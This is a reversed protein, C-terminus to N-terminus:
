ASTKRKFLFPFAAICLLMVAILQFQSMNDGTKPPVPTNQPLPSPSPTGLPATPTPSPAISPTPTPSPTPQINPSPSDLYSWIGVFHIDENFIQKSPPNWKVFSWLGNGDSVSSFRSRPTISTGPLQHSLALPLQSLVGAPLPRTIGTDPQFSFSATFGASYGFELQNAHVLNVPTVSHIERRGLIPVNFFGVSAKAIGKVSGSVFARQAGNTQAMQKATENPLKFVLQNLAEQNLNKGTKANIEWTSYSKLEMDETVIDAGTREPSGSINEIRQGEIRLIMRLTFEKKREPNHVKFFVEPDSQSILSQFSNKGSGLLADSRPDQISLKNKGADMIFAPVWSYSKTSLYFSEPAEIKEDIKIHIDIHSYDAASGERNNFDPLSRYNNSLVRERIGAANAYGYSPNSYVLLAVRRDSNFTASLPIEHIFLVDDKEAFYDVVIDESDPRFASNLRTGPLKDEKSFRRQIFAANSKNVLPSLKAADGGWLWSLAGFGMDPIPINVYIAYLAEGGALGDPFATSITDSALYIKAGPAIDGDATPPLSSWCVFNTRLSNYLGGFLGAYGLKDDPSSFTKAVDRMSYSEGGGYQGKMMVTGQFSAAHAAPLLSLLLVICFVFSFVKAKVFDM